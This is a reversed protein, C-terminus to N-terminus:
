ACDTRRVDGAGGKGEEEAAIKQIGVKWRESSKTESLPM